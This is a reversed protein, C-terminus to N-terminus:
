PTQAEKRAVRAHKKELIEAAVQFARQDPFQQALQRYASLAADLRGARLQEVAQAALENAPPSPNPAEVQTNAREPTRAKEPKQTTSGEPVAAPITRESAHPTARLPKAEERHEAQSIQRHAQWWVGGFAAMLTCSAAAVAGLVMQLNGSRAAKRTKREVSERRATNVEAQPEPPRQPAAATAPPVIVAEAQTRMDLDLVPFPRIPAGVPVHQAAAPAAAGVPGHLPSAVTVQQPPGDVVTLPLFLTMEGQVPAPAPEHVAFNVIATPADYSGALDRTPTDLNLGVPSKRQPLDFRTAEEVSTHGQRRPDNM